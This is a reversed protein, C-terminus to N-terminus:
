DEERKRKRSLWEERNQTSSAVPEEELSASLFHSFLLDLWYSWCSHQATVRINENSSLLFIGSLWSSMTQRNGKRTKLYKFFLKIMLQMQCFSLLSTECFPLLRLVFMFDERLSTMRSAFCSHQVLAMGGVPASLQLKRLRNKIWLIPRESSCLKLFVTQAYAFSVSQDKSAQLALECVAVYQYDCIEQSSELVAVAACQELSCALPRSLSVSFSTHAQVYPAIRARCLDLWYSFIPSFIPRFRESISSVPALPWDFNPSRGEDTYAMLFLECLEIESISARKYFSLHWEVSSVPIHISQNSLWMRRNYIVPHETAPNAHRISFIEIFLGSFKFLEWVLNKILCPHSLFKLRSSLFDIFRCALEQTLDVNQYFLNNDLLFLERLSLGFVFIAGNIFNLSHPARPPRSSIPKRSLFREQFSRSASFPLDKCVFAFMDQECIWFPDGVFSIGTISFLNTLCDSNLSSRMYSHFFLMEGSINLLGCRRFFQQYTATFEPSGESCILTKLLDELVELLPALPLPLTFPIHEGQQDFAYMHLLCDNLRSIERGATTLPISGREHRLHHQRSLIFLVKKITSSFDHLDRHASSSPFYPFYLNTSGLLPSISM